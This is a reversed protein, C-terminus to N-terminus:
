KWAKWDSAKPSVQRYQMVGGHRGVEWVKRSQESVIFLSKGATAAFAGDSPAPGSSRVWVIAVADANGAAQQASPAGMGISTVVPEGTEERGLTLVKDGPGQGITARGMSVASKTLAPDAEFDATQALAVPACLMLAAAILGSRLGFSLITM